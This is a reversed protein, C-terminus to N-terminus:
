RVPPWVEDLPKSPRRIRSQAITYPIDAPTTKLWTRGDMSRDAVHVEESIQAPYGNSPRPEGPAHLPSCGTPLVPKYPPEQVVAMGFSPGKETERRVHYSSDPPLTARNVALAVRYHGTIFPRWCRVRLKQGGVAKGVSPEAIRQREDM